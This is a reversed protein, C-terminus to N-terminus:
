GWKPHHEAAEHDADHHAGSHEGDEVVLTPSLGADQPQDQRHHTDTHPDTAYRSSWTQILSLSLTHIYVQYSISNGLIFM